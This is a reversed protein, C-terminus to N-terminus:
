RDLLSFIIIVGHNVLNPFFFYHIHLSTYLVYYTFTVRNDLYWKTTAKEPNNEKIEESPEYLDIIRPDVDKGFKNM